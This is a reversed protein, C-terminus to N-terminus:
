DSDKLLPVLQPLATKAEAGIRGLASAADRRVNADSNKLAKALAPIAPRGIQRLVNAASRRVQLNKDQVAAMLAPIAPEGIEALKEIAADLERGDNTKLKEILSAIEKPNAKSASLNEAAANGTLLLPSTFSLFSLAIVAVLKQRYHKTM